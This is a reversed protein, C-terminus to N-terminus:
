FSTELLEAYMGPGGFYNRPKNWPPAIALRLYGPYGRWVHMYRGAAAGIGTPAAVAGPLAKLALRRHQDEPRLNPTMGM